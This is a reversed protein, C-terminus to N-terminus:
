GDRGHLVGVPLFSCGQLLSLALHHDINWSKFNLYILVWETSIAQLNDRIYWCLVKVNDESNNTWPLNLIIGHLFPAVHIWASQLSCCLLHCVYLCNLIRSRCPQMCEMYQVTWANDSPFTNFLRIFLGFWMYLKSWMM